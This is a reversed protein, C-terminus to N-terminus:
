RSCPRPDRPPPAATAPVRMRETIPLGPAPWTRARLFEVMQGAARRGELASLGATEAGRLLNGAAFVGPRSTRFAGDLRPGRTGPDMALGGLRALEHEPIWGGTFVVTDCSIRRGDTLVVAEVRERGVIEAIDAGTILPVRHRGATAMWLPPFTQHRPLPTVMAAVECGAHLLTLLASLSVLEAGVIVARRGVPLHQEHVFRQLSGTTFVGAPRSGPVLRAARPRERCGTALLVTRAAIEGLGEPSTYTVATPGAWGTVATQPRIAVGAPGAGIILVDTHTTPM